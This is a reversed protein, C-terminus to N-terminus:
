RKEILRLLERLAADQTNATVVEDDHPFMIDSKAYAPRVVYHLCADFDDPDADSTDCYMRFEVHRGFRKRAAAEVERRLQRTTARPSTM